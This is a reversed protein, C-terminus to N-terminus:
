SHLRVGVLRPCDHILIEYRMQCKEHLDDGKLERKYHQGRLSKNVEYSEVVGKM